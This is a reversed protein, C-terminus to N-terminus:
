ANIKNKIKKLKEARKLKNDDIVMACIRPNEEDIFIEFSFNNDNIKNVIQPKDKPLFLYLYPRDFTLNHEMVMIADFFGFDVDKGYERIYYKYTIKEFFSTKAAILGVNGPICSDDRYLSFKFKYRDSIEEINKITGSKLLAM